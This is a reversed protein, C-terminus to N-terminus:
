DNFYLTCPLVLSHPENGANTKRKSKISELLINVSNEGIEKVPMEAVHINPALIEFTSVSHICALGFKENFNIEKKHFYIFAELALIHTTFFFGDVDPEKEFITDLVDVVNQEYNDYIVCGILNPNIAIEAKELAQKYGDVRFCMTTLHPNTTIIAIKQCGKEILHSVLKCSSEKNDIIISSMELEPFFRDFTVIPFKEKILRKIEIKSQKTPAIIIGDVGKSRFTRLMNEEKDPNSESSAIMLSYGKDSASQEIYRAISSYFDDSISPIILGLTKTKGLNLSRAILNPQYDMEVACKKVLDQTPKSIGRRDGDGTLVWSVTTQSLNLKRAIDKLSTRRVTADLKNTTTFFM